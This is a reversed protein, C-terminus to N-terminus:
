ASWPNILELGLGEFHRINRTAIAAKRAMAIGAIQVDRIELSRGVRSQSAAIRGAAQAATEDFSVIRGQFDLELSKSFKEELLQRRRGPALLEIGVRIEFVTIATTWLSALRQKDLWLSVAHDPAPKMFASIVNTDLLIV